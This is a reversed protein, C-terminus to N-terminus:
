WGTTWAVQAEWTVCHYLIQNGTCSICSVHAGTGLNLLYGPTTSPFGSYCEQKSSEVRLPAQLAVAGSTASLRVRSPLQAASIPCCVSTLVRTNKCPDRWVRLCHMKERPRQSKWMKNRRSTVHRKGGNPQYHHHHHPHKCINVSHKEIPPSNHSSLSLFSQVALSQSLNLTFPGVGSFRMGGM